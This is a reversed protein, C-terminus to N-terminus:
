HGCGQWRANCTIPESRGSQPNRMGVTNMHWQTWMDSASEGGHLCSIRYEADEGLSLLENFGRIGHLVPAAYLKGWALAIGKRAFCTWAFVTM